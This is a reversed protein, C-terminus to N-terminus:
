QCRSMVNWFNSMMIQRGRMVNELLIRAKASVVMASYEKRGLKVRYHHYVKLKVKQDLVVLLDHTANRVLEGVNLSGRNTWDTTESRLWEYGKEINKGLEISRSRILKDLKMEEFTNLLHRRRSEAVELLEGSTKGIVRIGIEKARHIAGLCIAPHIHRSFSEILLLSLQVIPTDMVQELKRPTTSLLGLYFSNVASGIRGEEPKELRKSEVKDSRRVLRNIQTQVRRERVTKESHIINGRKGHRGRQNIHIVDEDFLESAGRRKQFVPSPTALPIVSDPSISQANLRAPTLTTTTPMTKAYHSFSAATPKSRMTTSTSYFAPTSELLSAALIALLGFIISSIFSPNSKTTTSDSRHSGDHSRRSAACAEVEILEDLIQGLDEDSTSLLESLTVIPSPVPFQNFRSHIKSGLGLVLDDDVLLEDWKKAILREEHTPRETSRILFNTQVTTLMSSSRLSSISPALSSSPPQSSNTAPTAASSSSSATIILPLIKFDMAPRATLEDLGLSKVVKQGEELYHIILLKGREKRFPHIVNSEIVSTSTSPFQQRLKNVVSRNQSDTSNPSAIFAISLQETRHIANASLTIASNIASSFLQPAMSITATSTETSADADVFSRRRSLKPGSKRIGSETMALWRGIDGARGDSLRVASGDRVNAGRNDNRLVNDDSDSATTIFTSTSSSADSVRRVTDLILTGGAAVLGPSSSRSLESLLSYDSLFSSHLNGVDALDHDSATSSRSQASSSADHSHSPDPYSLRMDKSEKDITSDESNDDSEVVSSAKKPNTHGSHVFDYDSQGLGFHSIETSDEQKFDLSRSSPSSSPPSPIRLNTM